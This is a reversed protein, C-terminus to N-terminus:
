DHEEIEKGIAPDSERKNLQNSHASESSCPPIESSVEGEIAVIERLIHSLQWIASDTAPNGSLNEQHNESSIM